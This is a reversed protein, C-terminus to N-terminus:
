MRSGLEASPLAGLPLRVRVDAMALRYAVAVDHARQDRLRNDILESCGAPTAGADGGHCLPTNSRCWPRVCRVLPLPPFRVWTCRSLLCAGRWRRVCKWSAGTVPCRDVRSDFGCGEARCAAARGVSSRSRVRCAFWCTASSDFGAPLATPKPSRAREWVRDGGTFGLVGHPLRVRGLRSSLGGVEGSTSRPTNM